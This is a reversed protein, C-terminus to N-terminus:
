RSAPGFEHYFDQGRQYILPLDLARGYHGRDRVSPSLEAYALRGQLHRLYPKKALAHRYHVAADAWLGGALYVNAIFERHVFSDGRLEASRELCARAWDVAGAEMLLRGAGGLGRASDKLGHFCKGFEDSAAADGLRHLLAAREAHTRGGPLPAALVKAALQLGIGEPAATLAAAALDYSIDLSPLVKALAELDNITCATLAFSLGYRRDERAAALAEELRGIGLRQRLEAAKLGLYLDSGGVPEPLLAAAASPREFRHWLYAFRVRWHADALGDLHSSVLTAILDVAGLGGLFGLAQAIWYTSAPLRGARDALVRCAAEASEGRRMALTLHARAASLTMAWRDTADGSPDVAVERLYAEPPWVPSVGLSEIDGPSLPEGHRGVAASAAASFAEGRNGAAALAAVIDGIVPSRRGWKGALLGQRILRLGHRRVTPDDGRGSSRRLVVISHDSVDAMEPQRVLGADLLSWGKGFPFESPEEPANAAQGYHNIAIFLGGASTHRVAHDLYATVVDNPIEQMSDINIAADVAFHPGNFAPHRTLVHANVFTMGGTAVTAPELTGVYSTAASPYLSRLYWEQLMLIEPIDVAVLTLRDGYHRRLMAQILGFGGGIEMVRPHALGAGDLYGVIRRTIAAAHVFLSSFRRGAIDIHRIPQGIDSEPAALLRRVIADDLDLVSADVLHYLDRIGRQVRSGRAFMSGLEAESYAAPRAQLTERWLDTLDETGGIASTRHGV